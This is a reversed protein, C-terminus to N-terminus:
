RQREQVRRAREGPSYTAHHDSGELGPVVVRVVPIGIGPQTLDVAVAEDLGASRLRDLLWDVEERLTTFRSQGAARFDRPTPGALAALAQRHREALAAPAYDGAVIDERSGVIYTTRVQAAELLARVLAVERRPHTGAGIGIHGHADEPDVLVARFSPVAIDSTVDWAASAIGAGALREVVSRAAPDDVSALDIRRQAQRQPAVFRWLSTADREITECLAHSTAELAHSGSALGNTSAAFFGAMPPGSRTMDAHVLDVPVLVPRGDFLSLGHAWLMPAEADFRRGPLLPLRHGDVLEFRDKLDAASGHRLVLDAHEAHWTEAAEMLGSAKASVLDLGKGHFVASSRANPRCVMVVPIGIRDLGTLVAVRTIGLRAKHALVRAVAAEARATRTGDSTIIPGPGAEDFAM